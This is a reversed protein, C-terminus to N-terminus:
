INIHWFNVTKFSIEITVLECNIQVVELVKLTNEITKEIMQKTEDLKEIMNPGIMQFSEM